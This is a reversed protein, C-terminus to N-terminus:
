AGLKYISNKIAAVNKGTLTRRELLAAVVAEVFAKNDIIMQKAMQYYREMEGNKLHDRNEMQYNSINLDTHAHFGFACYDDVFRNVIDFARSVDRGSGVDLIGCFVETAARGGLLGIVRHEMLSKSWWYNDPKRISTIGGIPGSYGAISILNVSGPDLLEAIVAHGAEHIALQRKSEFDLKDEEETADFVHRLCARLLDAQSIQERRDFAAYMGAENVITELDACSRGDLIQAIEKPDIDKQIRKQNLFHKVIKEADEGEPQKMKVVKDFRGSRMLSDPLNRRENVTAVVFVQAEKANDICAQVTVYEEEDCHNADGNAFKDLDDLIIVSPAEKQAKEFTERIYNVFEGDPRDKRITFVKRGSEKAIAVAMLSKGIGPAGYLLVGRPITVGLKGYKEPNKMADCIRIMEVKLSEYGIIRDFASM